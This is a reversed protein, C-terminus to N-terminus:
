IESKEIEAELEEWFDFDVINLKDEPITQFAKEIENSHSSRAKELAELASIAKVTQVSTIAELTKIRVTFTFVPLGSTDPCKHLKWDEIKDTM